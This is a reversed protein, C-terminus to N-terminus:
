QLRCVESMPPSPEHYAVSRVRLCRCVESTPPLPGQEGVSAFAIRVLEDEGKDEGGMDFTVFCKISSTTENGLYGRHPHFSWILSSDSLLELFASQLEHTEGGGGLLLEEERERIKEKRHKMPGFRVVHKQQTVIDYTSVLFFVSINYPVFVLPNSFM